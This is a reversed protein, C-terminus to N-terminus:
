AQPVTIGLTLDAPAFVNATASGSAYPPQGFSVQDGVNPSVRRVLLYRYFGAWTYLWTVGDPQLVATKLNIVEGAFVQTATNSEQAPAQIAVAKRRAFWTVVKEGCGAHLRVLEAHTGPVSAVPLTIVGEDWSLFTRVEYTEYPFQRMSEMWLNAQATPDGGGTNNEITGSPFYDVYPHSTIGASPPIAPNNIIVAM